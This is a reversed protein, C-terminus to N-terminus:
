FRSAGGNGAGSTLGLARAFASLTMGAIVEAQEPSYGREVLSLEHARWLVSGSGFEAPRFKDSCVHLLLERESPLLGALPDKDPIRGAKFAHWLDTMAQRQNSTLETLVVERAWEELRRNRAAAARLVLFVLVGVIGLILLVWM